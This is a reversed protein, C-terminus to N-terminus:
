IAESAEVMRRAVMTINRAVSTRPDIAFSKGQIRIGFVRAIVIGEISDEIAM